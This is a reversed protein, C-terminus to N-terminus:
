ADIPELLQARALQKQIDALNASQSIKRGQSRLLAIGDLRIQNVIDEVPFDIPAPTESNEERAKLAKIIAPCLENASSICIYFSSNCMLTSLLLNCIAQELQWDKAGLATVAHMMEPYRQTRIREVTVPFNRELRKKRQNFHEKLTQRSYEPITSKSKNTKKRFNRSAQLLSHERSGAIVDCEYVFEAEFKLIPNSEELPVVTFEKNDQPQITAAAGFLFPSVLNKKYGRLEELAPHRTDFKKQYIGTMLLPEGFTDETCLHRIARTVERQISLLYGGDNLFIFTLEIADGDTVSAWDNLIKFAEILPERKRGVLDIERLPLDLSSNPAYRYACGIIQAQQLLQIFSIDSVVMAGSEIGFDFGYQQPLRIGNKGVRDPKTGRKQKRKNM